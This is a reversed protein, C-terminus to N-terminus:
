RDRSDLVVGGDPLWLLGQSGASGNAGESCPWCTHSQTWEEVLRGPSAGLKEKGSVLFRELKQVKGTKEAIKEVEESNM